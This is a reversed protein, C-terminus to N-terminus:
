DSEKLAPQQIWAGDSYKKVKRYLLISELTSKVGQNHISIRRNTYLQPMSHLLYLTSKSTFTQTNLSLCNM